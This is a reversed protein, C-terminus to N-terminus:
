KDLIEIYEIQFPLTEDVEFFENSGLTCSTYGEETRTDFIHVMEGENMHVVDGECDFFYNDFDILKLLGHIPYVEDTYKISVRKGLYEELNTVM